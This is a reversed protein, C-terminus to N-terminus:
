ALGAVHWREVRDVNGPVQRRVLKGSAAGSAQRAFRVEDGMYGAEMLVM